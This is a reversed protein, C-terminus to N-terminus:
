CAGFVVTRGPRAENGTVAHAIARAIREGGLASPEIPNAYHEPADCVLRLDIVSLGAVFATRLIVDNFVTLAASAARPLEPEPLNGEYVTCVVAPLERAVLARVLAQYQRAFGDRIDALRLLTQLAANAREQLLGIHGLADNGGVSLVLHTADAPVEGLQRYVDDVVAGDVALLTAKWGDPLRRALQRVVDPERVRVYAGNDFISDGLLIVHGAKMVTEPLFDPNAGM